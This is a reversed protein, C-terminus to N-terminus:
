ETECISGADRVTTPASPNPSVTSLTAASERASQITSEVRPTANRTSGVKLLTSRVTATPSRAPTLLLGFAIATLSPAVHTALLADATKRIPAPALTERISTPLSGRPIAVPSRAVHTASSKSPVTDRISAM